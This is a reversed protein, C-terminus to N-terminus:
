VHTTDVVATVALLRIKTVYSLVAPALQEVAEPTVSSATLALVAPVLKVTLLATLAPAPTRIHKEHHIM